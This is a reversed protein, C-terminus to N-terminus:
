GYRIDRPDFPSLKRRVAELQEEAAKYEVKLARLEAATWDTRLTFEEDYLTVLVDAQNDWGNGFSGVPILAEASESCGHCSVSAYAVWSLFSGMGSRSIRLDHRYPLEPLMAKVKAIFTGDAKLVKTGLLPRFLNRLRPTWENAAANAINVAKVRADLDHIM